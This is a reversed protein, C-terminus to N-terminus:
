YPSPTHQAICVTAGIVTGFPSFIPTSLTLPRKKFLNSQALGREENYRRELVRLKSELRKIKRLYQKNIMRQEELERLIVLHNKDELKNNKEYKQKEKGLGQNGNQIAAILVTLGDKEKTLSTVQLKLSAERQALTNVQNTLLIEKSPPVEFTTQLNKLQFNICVNKQKEVLQNILAEQLTTIDKDKQETLDELAKNKEETLTSRLTAIDKDKKTLARENDALQKTLTAIDEDKDTLAKEKAELAEILSQNIIYSFNENEKYGLQSMLDSTKLSQLAKKKKTLAKEKETLKAKLSGIEEEKEKTLDELAKNKEETLTNRLTAIDEDKDTLTQLAKDKKTLARENDALKSTLTNNINQLDQLAKDKNTIEQKMEKLKKAQETLAKDKNTLAEKLIQLVKDKEKSVDEKLIQLAKVKEKLERTLDLEMKLAALAKGKEELRKTLDEITKDKKTLDEKLDALASIKILAGTFSAITEDKQTTLAEKEEAERAEPIIQLNELKKKVEHTSNKKILESKHVATFSPRNNSFNEKNEDYDAAFVALSVMYNIFLCIFIKKM